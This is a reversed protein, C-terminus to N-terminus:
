CAGAPPSPARDNDDDPPRRQIVAVRATSRVHLLRGRYIHRECRIFEAVPGVLRCDSWSTASCTESDSVSTVTVVRGDPTRYLIAVGSQVASPSYWGYRNKPHTSMDQTSFRGQTNHTQAIRCSKRKEKEREKKWFPDPGNHTSGVGLWSGYCLKM